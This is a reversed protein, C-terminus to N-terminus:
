GISFSIRNFYRREFPFCEFNKKEVACEASTASSNCINQFRLFARKADEVGAQASDYASQSLDVATAQQQDRVMIRIFGITVITILMAAFVVVFLSVAGKQYKRKNSM